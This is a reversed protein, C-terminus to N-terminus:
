ETSSSDQSGAAPGAMPAPVDETACDQVDDELLDEMTLLVSDLGDRFRSLVLSSSASNVADSFRSIIEREVRDQYEGLDDVPIFHHFHYMFIINMTFESLLFEKVLDVDSLSGIKSIIEDCKSM